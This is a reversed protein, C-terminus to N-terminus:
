MKSRRGFRQRRQAMCILSKQKTLNENYKKLLEEPFAEGGVMIETICSLNSEGDKENVFLQMRSPTAQLMEVQNDFLWQKLQASNQQEDESALAVKLGQTLPLLTELVFIDFSITTLAAIIKGQKFPLRDTMGKFFNIVSRHSVSVGKPKGTSGSTYIMYATDDSSNINTLSLTSDVSCLYNNVDITEGSFAVKGVLSTDTLLHNTESDDLMHKIREIPYSPDIPLYAGGSKLVALLATLMNPSRNMMVAVVSNRQVGKERLQYALHNVRIILEAYTLGSKRFWIAVLDGSLMAQNEFLEHITKDCQYPIKTNNFQSEIQHIEMSTLMQIQRLPISTEELVEEFFAVLHHYIGAIFDSSYMSRDYEIRLQLSEETKLLRFIITGEVEQLRVPVHLTNMLVITKFHPVASDAEDKLLSVIKRFPISSNRQAEQFTRAVLMLYNKFTTNEDVEVKIATLNLDAAIGNGEAKLDAPKGLMISRDGAYRHLLYTVGSLLLSYLGQESQRCLREMQEVLKAPFSRQYVDEILELNGGVDRMDSPFYSMEISSGLKNLWYEREEDWRGSSLLINEIFADKM